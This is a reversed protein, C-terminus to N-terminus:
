IFYDMVYTVYDHIGYIKVNINKVNYYWRFPLIVSQGSKLQIAIVPENSDPVDDVVKNSAAYLLIECDQVAYMYLYKHSNINWIRKEDFQIDQIINPSFWADLVTLVDKLKDEIVMPQRKLLMNFDFYQLTTQIISIYTPFIFYCYIYACIIFIIALLIYSM